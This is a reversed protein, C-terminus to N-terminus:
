KNKSKSRGILSIQLYDGPNEKLDRVLHDLDSVLTELNLLLTDSYVLRGANGTGSNIKELLKELQLAASVLTGTLTDIGAGDASESISQLHGIMSHIEDEQSRLMASVSELNDFTMELSGGEDLTSSLSHSISSLHDMTQRTTESGILDDMSNGLSDLTIALAGVQQLVPNIRDQLRTLMDPIVATKLTDGEHYIKENASGRIRVAKTGLLDASYLEAVSGRSLPYTKEINLFLTVPPEEGPRFRIRDVYGIQVGNMMVPADKNMGEADQYLAYLTYTKRLINRGKLFNIGWILVAVLVVGLIGAKAETSLKM